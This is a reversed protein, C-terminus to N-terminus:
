MRIGCHKCRLCHFDQDLEWEHTGSPSWECVNYDDFGGSVKDLMEDDLEKEDLAKKKEM